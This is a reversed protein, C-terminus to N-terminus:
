HLRITAGPKIFVAGTPHLICHGPRCWSEHFDADAELDVAIEGGLELGRLFQLLQTKLTQRQLDLPPRLNHKIAAASPWSQDRPRGRRLVGRIRETLWEWAEEEAGSATKSVAIELYAMEREVKERPLM